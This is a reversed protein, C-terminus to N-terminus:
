FNCYIQRFFLTSKKWMAPAELLLILINSVIKHQFIASSNWSLLSLMSFTQFYSISKLDFYWVTINSKTLFQEICLNSSFKLSYKSSTLQEIETSCLVIFYLLSLEDNSRSPQTVLTKLWKEEGALVTESNCSINWKTLMSYWSIILCAGLLHNYKM